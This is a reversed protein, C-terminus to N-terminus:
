AVRERMGEIGCDGGRASAVGGVEDRGFFDGLLLADIDAGTGEIAAMVGNVLVSV